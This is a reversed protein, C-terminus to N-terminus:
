DMFFSDIKEQSDLIKEESVGSKRALSISSKMRQDFNENFANAILDNFVDEKEQLAKQYAKYQANLEEDLRAQDELYGNLLELERQYLALRGYQVSFDAVARLFEAYESGAGKTKYAALLKIMAEFSSWLCRDVYDEAERIEGNELRKTLVRIEEAIGKIEKANDGNVYKKNIDVSVDIYVAFLEFVDETYKQPDM